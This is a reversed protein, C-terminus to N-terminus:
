WSMKRNRLATLRHFDIIASLEEPKSDMLKPINSIRSIPSLANRRCFTIQPLFCDQMM